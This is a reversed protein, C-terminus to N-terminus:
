GSRPRNKEFRIVRAAWRDTYYRNVSFLLRAFFMAGAFVIVGALLVYWIPQFGIDLFSYPIWRRPIVGAAILPIMVAAYAAILWVSSLRHLPRLRDEPTEFLLFSIVSLLPIVVHMCFSDYRFIDPSDPIFPLFSLAIVMAIVCETVASSLRLSYLFSNYIEKQSIFERLCVAATLGATLVTYLTGNVTMFRFDTLWNTKNRMAADLFASIGLVLVAVCLLTNMLKKWFSHSLLNDQVDATM